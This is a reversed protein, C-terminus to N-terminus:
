VAIRRTRDIPRPNGQVLVRAPSAAAPRPAPRRAPPPVPRMAEPPAAPPMPSAVNLTRALYADIEPQYVKWRRNIPHGQLQKGNLLAYVPDPKKFGLQAAVERIPVPRM